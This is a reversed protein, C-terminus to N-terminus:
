GPGPLILIKAQYARILGDATRAFSSDQWCKSSGFTAGPIIVIILDNPAIGQADFFEAAWKEAAASTKLEVREDADRCGLSRVLHLYLRVM